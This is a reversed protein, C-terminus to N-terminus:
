TPRSPSQARRATGSGLPLRLVVTGDAASADAYEFLETGNKSVTFRVTRGQVPGSPDTVTATVGFPSGPRRRRTQLGVEATDVGAPVVRYGDGDATDLGVAGVGNAAQVLFRMGSSPQGAPLPMTGTWHTSDNPDQTLDVSSGTATAWDSRREGTWTAWVQQVGASPDGTVTASFTVVGSAM